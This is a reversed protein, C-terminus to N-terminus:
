QGNRPLGEIKLVLYHHLRERPKLLLQLVQLFGVGLPPLLFGLPLFLPSGLSFLPQSIFHHTGGGGGDVERRRGDWRRREGGVDERWRRIRHGRKWGVDERRSRRGEGTQYAEM